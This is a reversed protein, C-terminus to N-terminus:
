LVPDSGVIRHLTHEVDPDPLVVGQRRLERGIVLVSAAAHLAAIALLLLCAYM